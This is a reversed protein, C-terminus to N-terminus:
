ENLFLRNLMEAMTTSYKLVLDTGMRYMDIAANIEDEPMDPYNQSEIAFITDYFSNLCNKLAEKDTDTLVTDDQMLSDMIVEDEPNDPVDVSNMKIMEAKTRDFLLCFERVSPSLNEYSDAFSSLGCAVLLTLVVALKRFMSLVSAKMMNCLYFGVISMKLKNHLYVVYLKLIWFQDQM